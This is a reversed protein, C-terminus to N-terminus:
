ATGLPQVPGENHNSPGERTHLNERTTACPSRKSCCLPKTTAAQPGLQGLARAMKTRGGPFSGTDGANSPLDKVVRGGPFDGQDGKTAKKGRGDERIESQGWKRFREVQKNTLKYTVMKGKGQVTMDM